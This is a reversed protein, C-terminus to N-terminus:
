PTVLGTDEEISVVDSGAVHGGHVGGGRRERIEIVLEAPIVRSACQDLKQRGVQCRQQATRGLASGDYATRLRPPRSRVPRKSTVRRRSARVRV